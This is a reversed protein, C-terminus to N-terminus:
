VGRSLIFNDWDVGIQRSSNRTNAEDAVITRQWRNLPGIEKSFQQFTFLTDSLLDRRLISRLNQTFTHSSAEICTISINSAHLLANTKGLNAWHLLPLDRENGVEGIENRIRNLEDDKQTILIKSNKKSGQYYRMRPRRISEDLQRFKGKGRANWSEEVFLQLNTAVRWYSSSHFKTLRDELATPFCYKQISTINSATKGNSSSTRNRIRVESNVNEVAYVSHQILIEKCCHVYPIWRRIPIAKRSQTLRATKFM